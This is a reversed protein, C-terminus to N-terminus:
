EDYGESEEQEDDSNLAAYVVEKGENRASRRGHKTTTHTRRVEVVSTPSDTHHASHQGCPKSTSPPLSAVVATPEKRLSLNITKGRRVPDM